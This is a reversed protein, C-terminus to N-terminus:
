VFFVAYMLDSLKVMVREKIIFDNQVELVSMILSQQM